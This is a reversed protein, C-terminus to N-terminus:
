GAHARSKDKLMHKHKSHAVYKRHHKDVHHRAKAATEPKTTATMAPGTATPKATVAVTPPQAPANQKQSTIDTAAFATSVGAALLIALATFKIKTM